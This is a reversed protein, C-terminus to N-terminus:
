GGNAEQRQPPLVSFRVEVRLGPANNSVALMAGHLEAIAAALTLGLGAGPTNRSRDLRYFRRLIAARDQAPVGPGNDAVILSTFAGDRESSLEVRTGKPTHLLANDLLNSLMQTLLVSDGSIAAGSDAKVHLVRGGEEAAPRYLGALTQVLGDVAVSQFNPSANGGELRALSLLATMISQLEDTEAIANQILAPQRGSPARGAEELLNRLRNLPTRLDHAIDTSVQRLADMTAEQRDLMRNLNAALDDFERGFGIAPLRESPHGEMIRAASRNVQELRRLFLMGAILGAVIALFVLGVGGWIAITNLHTRLAQLPQTDRGVALFGGDAARATLIMIQGGSRRAGVDRAPLELIGFGDVERVSQPLESVLVEGGPGLVMYTYRRLATTRAQEALINALADSGELNADALMVEMQHTLAQEMEREAFRAVGVDLILLLLAAGFGFVLAFVAALRFTATHLIDALRREPHPTSSM